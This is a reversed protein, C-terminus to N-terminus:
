QSKGSTILRERSEQDMKPEWRRDVAWNAVLEDYRSSASQWDLAYAAGLATAEQVMPVFWQSALIDVSIPM